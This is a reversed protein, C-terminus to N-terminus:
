LGIRFRAKHPFIDRPSPGANADSPSCIPRRGAARSSRRRMRCDAGLSRDIRVQNAAISSKGRDTSVPQYPAHEERAAISQTVVDRFLSHASKGDRRANGFEARTSSTGSGGCGIAGHQHARQREANAAGVPIDHGPLITPRRGARVPQHYRGRIARCLPPPAPLNRRRPRRYQRRCRADARGPEM